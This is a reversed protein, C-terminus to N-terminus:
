PEPLRLKVMWRELGELEGCWVPCPVDLRSAELKLKTLARDRYTQGLRLAISVVGHKQFNQFDVSSPIQVFLLIPIVWADLPRRHCYQVVPPHEKSWAM